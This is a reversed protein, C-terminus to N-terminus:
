YINHNNVKIMNKDCNQNSKNTCYDIENKIIKSDKPTKCRNCEIRFTFNLNRCKKCVWDGEREVFPKSRKYQNNIYYDYQSQNDTKNKNTDINKNYTNCCFINRPQKISNRYNCFISIKDSPFNLNFYNYNYFYYFKMYNIKNDKIDSENINNQSNLPMNQNKNNNINKYDYINNLKIDFRSLSNNNDCYINNLSYLDFSGNFENRFKRYNEYSTDDMSATRQINYKIYSDKDLISGENDDYIQKMNSNEYKDVFMYNNNIYLKEKNIYNGSKTYDFYDKSSKNKEYLKKLFNQSSNYYECIPSTM